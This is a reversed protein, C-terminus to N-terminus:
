TMGQMRLYQVLTPFTKRRYDVMLPENAEMYKIGAFLAQKAEENKLIDALPWLYTKITFVIAKSKRLKVFTEQESRINGEVWDEAKEPLKPAVVHDAHLFLENMLTQGKNRRSKIIEVPMKAFAKDIAQAFYTDYHAVMNKHIEATSKGLRANMLSEREAEDWLARNDPRVFKSRLSWGNPFALVGSQLRHIRTGEANKEAPCMLVMDESALMMIVVRPDTKKSVDVTIGTLPSSVMDGKREFYLPYIETLYNVVRERLENEARRVKQSSERAIIWDRDNQFHQLLEVRKQMQGPYTSDVVLWDEHPPLPRLMLTKEVVKFRSIHDDRLAAVLEPVVAKPEFEVGPVIITM